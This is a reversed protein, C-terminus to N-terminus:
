NFINALPVYISFNNYRIMAICNSYILLSKTMFRLNHALTYSCRYINSRFHFSNNNSREDIKGITSFQEFHITLLNSENSIKRLFVELDIKKEVFIERLNKIKLLFINNNPKFFTPLEFSHNRVASYFVSFTGCFM